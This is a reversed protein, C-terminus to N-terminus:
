ITKITHHTRHPATYQTKKREWEKSQPENQDLKKKKSWERQQKPFTQFFFNEAIENKLSFRKYTFKTHKCQIYIKFWRRGIFCVFFWWRQQLQEASKKEHLYFFDYYFWTFHHSNVLFTYSFDFRFLLLLSFSTLFCCCRYNGCCCCCCFFFLFSFFIRFSFPLAAFFLCVCM